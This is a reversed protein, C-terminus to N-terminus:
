FICEAVRPINKTFHGPHHKRTPKIPRGTMLQTRFDNASLGTGPIVNLEIDSLDQFFDNWGAAADGMHCRHADQRLRSLGKWM